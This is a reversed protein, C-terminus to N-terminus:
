SGCTLCLWMCCILLGKRRVIIPEIGLKELIEKALTQTTPKGNNVMIQLLKVFSDKNGAELPGSFAQLLKGAKAQPSPISEIVAQDDTSIIRERILGPLLCANDHGLINTLEVYYDYFVDRGTLDKEKEVMIQRM